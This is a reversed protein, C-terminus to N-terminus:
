PSDPSIIRLLDDANRLFTYGARETRADLGSSRLQGILGDFWAAKAGNTNVVPFIRVERAVRAMEEIAQLHFERGPTDYLFLFHSCLCLDFQRSRFPLHPLMAALYRGDARGADYDRLFVQMAGMRVAELEAPTRITEWVFNEPNERVQQMVDTRARRIADEVQSRSCQYLPDCSIVRHGSEHMRGNFGAPGDGCGLISRCLDAPTLNFMATYEDFSRGWAAVSKLIFTM